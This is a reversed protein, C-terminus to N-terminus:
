LQHLIRSKVNGLNRSSPASKSRKLGSLIENLRTYLFKVHGDFIDLIVSGEPGAIKGIEHALAGDDFVALDVNLSSAVPLFREIVKENGSRWTKALRSKRGNEGM